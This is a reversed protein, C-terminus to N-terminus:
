REARGRPAATDGSAAQNVSYAGSPAQMDDITFARERRLDRTFALWWTLM